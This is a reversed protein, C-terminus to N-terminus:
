IASQGCSSNSLPYRLHNKCNFTKRFAPNAVYCTNNAKEIFGVPKSTFINSVFIEFFVFITKFFNWCSSFFQFIAM